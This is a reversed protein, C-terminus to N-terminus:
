IGSKEFIQASKEFGQVSIFVANIDFFNPELM